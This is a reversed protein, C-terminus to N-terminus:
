YRVDFMQDAELPLHVHVTRSFILDGTHLDLNQKCGCRTLLSPWDCILHAQPHEFYFCAEAQGMKM